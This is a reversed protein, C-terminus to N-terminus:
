TVEKFGEMLWMLWNNTLEKKLDWMTKFFIIEIMASEYNGFYCSQLDHTNYEDPSNHNPALLKLTTTESTNSSLNLELCCPHKECQVLLQRQLASEMGKEQKRSVVLAMLVYEVRLNLSVPDSARFFPMSKLSSDWFCLAEQRLGLSKKSLHLTWKNGIYKLKSEM